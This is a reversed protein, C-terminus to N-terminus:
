HTPIFNLPLRDPLFCRRSSNYMIMTQCMTSLAQQFMSSFETWPIKSPILSFLKLKQYIRIAYPHLFPRLNLLSRPPPNIWGAVLMLRYRTKCSNLHRKLNSQLSSRTRSEHMVRRACISNSHNPQTLCRTDMSGFKNGPPSNCQSNVADPFVSSRCFIKMFFSMYHKRRIVRRKDPVFIELNRFKGCGLSNSSRLLRFGPPRLCAHLRQISNNYRCRIIPLSSFLASQKPIFKRLYFSKTTVCLSQKEMGSNFGLNSCPGCAGNQYFQSELKSRRSCSIMTSEGRNVTWPPLVTAKLLRCILDSLHYLQLSDSSNICSSVPPPHVCGQCLCAANNPLPAIM